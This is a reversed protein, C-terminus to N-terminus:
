REESRLGKQLEYLYRGVSKCRGDNGNLVLRTKWPATQHDIGGAMENREIDDAPIYIPHFGHLHVDEVPVERFILAEAHLALFIWLEMFQAGVGQVVRLVFDAVQDCVGPVASNTHHRFEIHRPMAGCPEHPM